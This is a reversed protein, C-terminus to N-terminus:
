EREAKTSGVAFKRIGGKYLAEDLDAHTLTLLRQIDLTGEVKHHGAMYGVNPDDEVLTDVEDETKYALEVRYSGKAYHDNALHDRLKEVEAEAVGDLPFHFRWTEGEWPNIETVTFFLRQGASERLPTGRSIGNETCYAEVAARRAEVGQAYGAAYDPDEPLAKFSAKAGDGFGRLFLKRRVHDKRNEYNM